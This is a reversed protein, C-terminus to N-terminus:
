NGLASPVGHHRWKSGIGGGINPIDDADITRKTGTFKPIPAFIEDLLNREISFKKVPNNRTASHKLGSVRCRISTQTRGFKIGTLRYKELSGAGNVIFNEILYDDEEEKWRTNNM